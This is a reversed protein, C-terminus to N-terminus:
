EAIDKTLSSDSGDDWVNNQIGAQVKVARNHSSHGAMRESAESRM